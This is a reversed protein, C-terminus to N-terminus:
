EKVKLWAARKEVRRFFAKSLIWSVLGPFHANAWIALVMIRPTIASTKGKNIMWLIKDAVDQPSMLLWKPAVQSTTWHVDAHQAFETDVAGPYIESVIIKSDRLERRLSESFGRLGFKFASYMSYTPIGIWAAISSVYIIHGSGQSTMIPLVERTLQIAGILNAQLQAQIDAILSYEDLWVHRAFGASNILIDVRGYVQITKDVLHQIQDVLGLDTQIPLVEGGLDTIQSALTLLKEQRRAAVVVRYGNSALTKAVAEGIGSSAGTIIAVSKSM